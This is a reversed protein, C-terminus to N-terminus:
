SGNWILNGCPTWCGLGVVPGLPQFVYNNAIVSITVLQSVRLGTAAPASSVSITLLQSARLNGPGGSVSVTNLQSSRLATM